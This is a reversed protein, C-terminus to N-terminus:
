DLSLANYEVPNETSMLALFETADALDIVSDNAELNAYVYFEGSNLHELFETADALDIYSDTSEYNCIIIPINVDAIDNEGSLTVTREVTTEGKILLETTGKPVSATFNGDEDSEAVVEGDLYVKIGVIGKEGSAGKLDKAITITGTVTIFKVSLDPSMDYSLTPYYNSTAEVSQCVYAKDFGYEYSAQVFTLEPDEDVVFFDAFDGSKNVTVQMTVMVENDSIPTNNEATSALIVVFSNDENKIGGCRVTENTDAITSVSNIVIDNEGSVNYKATLEFSSFAAMGSLTLDVTYTGPTLFDGEATEGDENRFVAQILPSESGMGEDAMVSFPMLSIIFIFSLATIFAKTIKKM